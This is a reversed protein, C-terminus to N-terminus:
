SAAEGDPDGAPRLIMLPIDRSARRQYNAFTADRAVLIPWLRVKEEPSAQEALVPLVRRSVQITACPTKRLNLWWAPPREQGWNSAAVVYASGDVIYQMPHTRQRGSKRGTTTLLL